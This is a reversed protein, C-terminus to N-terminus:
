SDLDPTRLLVRGSSLKPRISEQSFIRLFEQEFRKLPYKKRYAAVIKWSSLERGLSYFSVKCLLDDSLLELGSEPVFGTGSGEAALYITTEVSCTRLYADPVDPWRRLFHSVLKGIKQRPQPLILPQSLLYRDFDQATQIHEEEASRRTVAFIRENALEQYTLQEGSVPLHLVALDIEQDILAQELDDGTSELLEIKVAPFLKSFRPLIKPLYCQGCYSPIGLRFTGRTQEYLESIQSMLTREEDKQALLFRYYLRGAENLKMPTTTRDFLPVGLREELRQIYKSLSPQSVYLLQAAHTLNGAQVITLFYDDMKSSTM